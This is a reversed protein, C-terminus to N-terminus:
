VNSANRYIRWKRSKKSPKPRLDEGACARGTGFAHYEFLLHSSMPKNIM